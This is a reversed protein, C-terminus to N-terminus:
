LQPVVTLRTPSYASGIPGAGAFITVGSAPKNTKWWLSFVYSNGPEMTYVAQVFAANPSFTGAFGGSEKWAVLSPTGGNVSVEIGLDQNYGGNATWLDANGSVLVTEATGGSGIAISGTALNTADMEGWTSGNSNISSYQTTSVATAWQDPASDAPLPYATLRTPSYASGIPGAGVFITGNAPKNTKWELSFVYTSGATMPYVTQVYAANPSFTGAFGGSEKWAVLVPTAGNVSVFIGLDQNYGANATWLDANGSVVESVASSPTYATTVLHTPDIEAWTSGNSNVSSYQQTSVVSQYGAPLVDATLRTPSFASGIPGAGAAITAGIAAKNTKWVIQVTYTTGASMPYVTEVFAANPSFTGAFGGAEKWAVLVPTGSGPTVQIGIDQNYGANFTWLDANASLLANETSSPDISFALNTPDMVQWTIGDSNPLLYQGQSVATLAAGPTVGSLPTVSNSSAGADTGVPNVSAVSFFYPTGNTLGTFMTSTGSVSQPTGVQQGQDNATTVAYGTVDDPIADSPATWSVSAQGSATSTAIINTPHSALATVSLVINDVFWETMDGPADADYAIARITQLPRSELFSTVNVSEPSMPSIYPGGSSPNTVEFTFSDGVTNGSGDMLGITVPHNSGTNCTAGPPLACAAAVDFTLSAQTVGDPVTLSQYAEDPDCGAYGCLDITSESGGIGTYGTYHWYQNDVTPFGGSSYEDWDPDPVCGPSCSAGQFSPDLIPSLPPDPAEEQTGVLDRGPSELPAASARVRTSTSPEPDLAAQPVPGGGWLAASTLPGQAPVGSAASATPGPGVSAVAAMVVAAVLM